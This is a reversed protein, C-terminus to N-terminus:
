PKSLMEPPIERFRLGIEFRPANAGRGWRNLDWHARVFKANPSGDLPVIMPYEGAYFKQPLTAIPKTDWAAGDASTFLSVEISQQEIVSKVSLTLLFARSAAASLDLAASDGNATIVTGEPVLYSDIM